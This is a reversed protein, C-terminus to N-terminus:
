TSSRSAAAPGAALYLRDGVMRLRRPEIFNPNFFPWALAGVERPGGSARGDLVRVGTTDAVYLRGGAAALDLVWLPLPAQSVFAPHEPDALNFVYLDKGASGYLRDGDITLHELAACPVPM